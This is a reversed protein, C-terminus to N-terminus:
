LREEKDSLLVLSINDRGGGALAQQLLHEACAEPSLTRMSEAIVDEDVMGYLGDSCILYRDGKKRELRLMDVDLSNETGVARTIVNRMPHKEAEEKTLAGRRVMEMVLSHDDTLQALEGDRLRYLRSDGVHAVYIEAPTALLATLTTGMGTLSDDAEAHMFVRRNARKVANLLSEMTPNKGALQETLVTKVTGSATEGGNHGGMGDAVGFLPAACIVSDQNSSRVLGIHTRTEAHMACDVVTPEDAAPRVPESGARLTTGFMDDAGSAYQKMRERPERNLHIKM